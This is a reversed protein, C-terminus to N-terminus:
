IYRRVHMCYDEYRKGFRRKLFSEESLIIFHHIIMGYIGLIIVVVNLSLFTAIVGLYIGVYIPNRSFRYLGKIELMTTEEPLGVRLSKGLNIMSMFIIIISLIFFIIFVIIADSSIDRLLILGSSWAAILSFKGTYFFMPNITPKGIIDLM